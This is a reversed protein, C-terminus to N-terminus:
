SDARDPNTVSWASHHPKSLESIGPILSKPPSHLSETFQFVPPSAPSPFHCFCKSTSAGLSCSLSSASHSASCCTLVLHGCYDATMLPFLAMSPSLAVRPFSLWQLPQAPCGLASAVATPAQLAALGKLRISVRSIISILAFMPPLWPEWSPPQWQWFVFSKLCHSPIFIKLLLCRQKRVHIHWFM